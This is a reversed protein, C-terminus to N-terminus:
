NLLGSSLMADRVRKQTNEKAPTLPLRVEMNCKGLVSAAFKVPVPNPEIFLVQHLPFLRVNIAMADDHKGAAWADHMQALASPAVNSTVSICGDGGNAMFSLVTADEGSLM